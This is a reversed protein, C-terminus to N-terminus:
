KLLHKRVYNTVLSEGNLKQCALFFGEFGTEGMTHDTWACAVQRQGKPADPTLPAKSASNSSIQPKSGPKPCRPEQASRDQALLPLATTLGPTQSSSSEQSTNMVDHIQSPDFPWRRPHFPSPSPVSRPPLTNSLRGPLPEASFSRQFNLNEWYFYSRPQSSNKKKSIGSIGVCCGSLAATCKSSSM